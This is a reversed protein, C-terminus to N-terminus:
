VMKGRAFNRNGGGKAGKEKLLALADEKSDKNAAAVVFGDPNWLLIAYGEHKSFELAVKELLPPMLNLEMKVLHKNQEKAERTLKHITAEALNEHAKELQKGRSKWEDFFRKVTNPLQEEQVNLESSAHKLLEERMHIWKWAQEGAKYRIRVIGDQVQECGVIKIIGVQSTYDCHMGGCAEVDVGSYDVVRIINGIAGGGQYLRFGYKKEAKGRDM